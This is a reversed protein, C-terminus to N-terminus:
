NPSTAGWVRRKETFRIGGVSTDPRRKSRRGGWSGRAPASSKMSIKFSSQGRAVRMKMPSAPFNSTVSGGSGRSRQDSSRSRRIATRTPNGGSCRCRTKASSSTWGPPGPASTTSTRGVRARLAPSIGQGFARRAARDLRFGPRHTQHVQRNATEDDNGLIPLRQKQSALRARLLATKEPRVRFM